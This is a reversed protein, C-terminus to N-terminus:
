EGASRPGLLWRFGAPGAHRPRLRRRVAFTSILCSLGKQGTHITRTRGSSADWLQVTGDDSGAALTRGHWSFDVSTVDGPPRPSHRPHPRNLHGM